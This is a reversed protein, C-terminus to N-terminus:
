IMMIRPLHFDLANASYMLKGSSKRAAALQHIIGFVLYPYRRGPLTWTRLFSLNGVRQRNWRGSSSWNRTCRSNTTLVCIRCTVPTSSPCKLKIGLQNNAANSGSVNGWARVTQQRRVSRAMIIGVWDNRMLIVDDTYEM